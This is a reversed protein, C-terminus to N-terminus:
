LVTAMMRSRQADQYSQEAHYDGYYGCQSDLCRHAIHAFTDDMSGVRTAEALPIETDLLILSVPSLTGASRPMSMPWFGIMVATRTVSRRQWNPQQIETSWGSLRRQSTRTSRYISGGRHTARMALFNARGLPRTDFTLAKAARDGSALEDTAHQEIHERLAAAAARNHEALTALDWWDAQEPAAYVQALRDSPLPEVARAHADEVSLGLQQRYHRVMGLYVDVVERALSAAHEAQLAAPATPEVM